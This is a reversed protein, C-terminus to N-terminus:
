LIFHFVCSYMRSVCLLHILGNGLIGQLLGWYLESFCSCRRQVSRLRWRFVGVTYWGASCMGAMITLELIHGEGPAKRIMSKDITEPKYECIVPAALVICLVALIVICGFVAWRDRCFRKITLQGFSLHEASLEKRGHMQCLRMWLKKM